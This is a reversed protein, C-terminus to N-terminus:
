PTPTLPTVTLLVGVLPHDFYEIKKTSVRRREMLRYVVPSSGENPSASPAPVAIPPVRNLIGAGGVAMPEAPTGAVQGGPVYALDLDSHLYQLRYVMITGDLSGSADEIRMPVAQARGVGPQIWNVVALVKYRADTALRALAANLPSDPTLGSVPTVARDLGKLPPVKEEAWQEQGELAPLRNAFVIANVQYTTTDPGAAQALPGALLAIVAYFFFSRM